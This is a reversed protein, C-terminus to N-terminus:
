VDGGDQAEEYSKEDVGTKSAVFGRFIGHSQKHRNQKTM